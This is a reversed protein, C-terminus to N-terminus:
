KLSNQMKAFQATTVVDSPASRKILRLLDRLATAVISPLLKSGSERITTIASSPM